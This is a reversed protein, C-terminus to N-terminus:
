RGSFIGYSSVSIINHILRPVRQWPYIGARVSRVAPAADGFEVTYYGAEEMRGPLERDPGPTAPEAGEQPIPASELRDASDAQPIEEEETISPPAEAVKQVPKVIPKVVKPKELLPPPEEERTCGWLILALCVPLIAPLAKMVGEKYEESVVVDM